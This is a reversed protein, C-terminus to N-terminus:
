SDKRTVNGLKTRELLGRLAAALRDCDGQGLGLEDAAYQLADFSTEIAEREADTLRLREIEDAAGSLLEGVEPEWAIEARLRAVIDTM